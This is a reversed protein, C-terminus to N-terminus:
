SRSNSGKVPKASRTGVKNAKRVPKDVKPPRDKGGIKMPPVQKTERSHRVEVIVPKGDVSIPAKALVDSVSCSEKFTVFAFKKNSPINISVIDGFEKFIDNLKQEDWSKQIDKVYIEFDGTKKPLQDEKSKTLMQAYSVPAKDLKPAVSKVPKEPKSEVVQEENDETVVVKPAKKEPKKKDAPKKDEVPQENPVPTEVEAVVMPEIVSIPPAAEVAVASGFDPGDVIVLVDNSVFLRADEDSNPSLLFTHSVKRAVNDTSTMLGAVVILVSGGIAPLFSGSEIEMQTGEFGTYRKQIEESGVTTVGNCCRSAEDQYFKGVLDTKTSLVEYYQKIFSCM